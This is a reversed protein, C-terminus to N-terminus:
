IKVNFDNKEASDFKQPSFFSLLRLRPSFSRNKTANLNSFVRSTEKIKAAEAAAASSKSEFSHFLSIRFRHHLTCKILVLHHESYASDFTPM